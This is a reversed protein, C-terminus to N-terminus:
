RLPPLMGDGVNYLSNSTREAHIFFRSLLPLCAAGLAVPRKQLSSERVPSDQKTGANLECLQLKVAQVVQRRVIPPM